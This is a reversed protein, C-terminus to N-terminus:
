HSYIPGKSDGVNLGSESTIVHDEKLYLPDNCSIDSTHYRIPFYNFQADQEDLMSIFCYITPRGHQRATSAYFETLRWEDTSILVDCGMYELRIYLSYHM